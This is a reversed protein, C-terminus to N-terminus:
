KLEEDVLSIEIRRNQARGEPTENTAVPNYPGYAVASLKGPGIGQKQLFRTVNIARAASLEWNTPYKRALAGSIKVNDTHGEIRIVKNEVDKLIDVVKQLVDLGEKKVEAQGSDFLVADVMNVTLKGKLESIQVQGESIEDKMSKILAEYTSSMEEVQEEKQKKLTAIQERLSANENELAAIKGELQALRAEYTTQQKEKEDRLEAITNSLSDSKAQLISELEQNDEILAAKEVELKEKEAQLQDKRNILAEHKAALTNLDATLEAAQKEKEEFTSKTVCGSVPIALLAALGWIIIRNKM